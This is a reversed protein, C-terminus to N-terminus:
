NLQLNDFFETKLSGAIVSYPYNISNLNYGLILIGRINEEDNFSVLIDNILANRTELDIDKYPFGVIKYKRREPGCSMVMWNHREVCKGRLVMNSLKKLNKEFKIQDEKQLNLLIYSAMLWNKSDKELKVLIDNWYKTKQLYPKRVNVGRRKGIYYPDIDKSKNTLNIAFLKDYETEGINFGNDLYFAFLDIEDGQFNLHAELERRRSLYHIKEAKLTLIDFIVELDTLSISPALEDLAHSTIKAEIIKKLNCGIFGLNSLTVGLPVYYKIKSSDIINKKGSKTKFEHIKRNQRLYNQFRIAQESPAIVLEQLTKSLRETAGRKAPLSVTGSKCEVIIAFDEVLVILDNEFDKNSLPCKWLSGTYLQADPFAGRFMQEVKNELYKGKKSVYEKQLKNDQVIFRELLDVGLHSFMHPIVSFYKNEDIKIFPKSHIPNDLFIHNKDIEAIYGFCCSLRNLIEIIEKESIEKSLHNYIEDSSHTYIDSLFCDSHQLLIAKLKKIDKGIKDWFEKRESIDTKNVEFNSEYLNFVDNYTKAKAFAISKRLHLNVKKEVLSALNFLVDLFIQPNFGQSKIFNEEILEALDYAVNEMQEVFAWNRVALTHGIMDIRLMIVGMDERNQAANILNFNSYSQNRCFETVTSKFDEINENLPKASICREFKLSICQLIELFFPPFDISGNIAEEDFGEEQLTFYYSCFSCLYLPDYEKFYSILKQYANEYKITSEKGLEIFYEKSKEFPVDSFPNDMKVFDNKIVEYPKFKKKGKLTRNKQFLPM